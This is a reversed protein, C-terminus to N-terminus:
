TKVLTQRDMPLFTSVGLCFVIGERPLHGWAYTLPNVRRNFNM